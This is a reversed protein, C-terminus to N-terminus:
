RASQWLEQKDQQRAAQRGTQNKQQSGAGQKPQEGSKRGPLSGTFRGEQGGPQRDPLQRHIEASTQNAAQKWAQRQRAVHVTSPWTVYKDAQSTM